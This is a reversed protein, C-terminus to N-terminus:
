NLSKLLVTNELLTNSEYGLVGGGGVKPVKQLSIELKKSLDCYLNRKVVRQRLAETLLHALYGQQDFGKPGNRQYTCFVPNM